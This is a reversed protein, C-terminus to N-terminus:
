LKKALQLLEQYRTKWYKEKDAIRREIEKFEKLYAKKDSEALALGAKVISEDLTLTRRSEILTRATKLDIIQPHKSQCLHWAATRFYTDLADHSEMIKLCAWFTNEDGVLAAGHLDEGFTKISIHDMKLKSLDTKFKMIDKGHSALINEYIMRAKFSRWTYPEERLIKLCQVLLKGAQKSQILNNSQSYFKEGIEKDTAATCKEMLWIFSTTQVDRPAPTHGGPFFTDSVEVGHEKLINKDREVYSKAGKDKDGSTRAVKYGPMQWHDEPKSSYGLWAGMPISGSIQSYFRRAFVYTAAGGGSMGSSFQRGPEFHLRQNIDRKIVYWSNKIKDYSQNNRSELNGILIIGQTSALQKFHNVMGGGGPSFTYMIPLLVSGDHKYQPPLYIDYFFSPYNLCQIKRSQGAELPFDLFLKLEQERIKNKLQLAKKQFDSLSTLFLDNLTSSQSILASINKLETQSQTLDEEILTQKLATFRLSTETILQSQTIYRYALTQEPTLLKKKQLLKLLQQSSKLDGTFLSYSFSAEISNSYNASKLLAYFFSTPMKNNDAKIEKDNMMYSISKDSFDTVRIKKSGVKIEKEFLLNKNEILFKKSAVLASLQKEIIQLCQTIKSPSLKHTYLKLESLQKSYFDLSHDNKNIALYDHWTNVKDQSWALNYNLCILLLIIKKV